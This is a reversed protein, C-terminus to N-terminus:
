QVALASGVPSYESVAKASESYLMMMDEREPTLYSLVILTESPILMAMSPSAAYRVCFLSLVTRTLSVRESPLAFESAATTLTM